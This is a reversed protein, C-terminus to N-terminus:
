CEEGEQALSNEKKSLFSLLSDNSIVAGPRSCLAFSILAFGLLLVVDASVESSRVFLFSM